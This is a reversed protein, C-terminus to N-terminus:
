SGAGPAGVRAGSAPAQAPAGAAAEGSAELLRRREAEVDVLPAARLRGVEDARYPVFGEPLTGSSFRVLVWNLVAALRADDLTSQAVGPVRALFARGGPARLLLGPRGVLSPVVGPAGRGDPRHCGMCELVYDQEAPSRATAPAAGLALAAGVLM